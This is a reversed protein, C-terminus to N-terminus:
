DDSDSLKQPASPCAYCGPCKSYQSSLRAINHAFQLVVPPDVSNIVPEGAAGGAGLNHLVGFKPHKTIKVFFKDELTQEDVDDIYDKLKLEIADVGTAVVSDPPNILPGDNVAAVKISVKGTGVDSSYDTASASEDSFTYQFSTYLPLEGTELNKPSFANKAPIFTVIGRDNSVVDGVHLEVLQSADTVLEDYTKVLAEGGFLGNYLKGEDPVATIKVFFNANTPAATGQSLRCAAHPAPDAFSSSSPRSPARSRSALPIHTVSDEAVTEDLDVAKTAVAAFNLVTVTAQASDAGGRSASYSFSVGGSPITAFTHKVELVYGGAVEPDSALGLGLSLGVPKDGGLVFTVDDSGGADETDMARLPITCEAGAHCVVVLNDGYVPARSAVSAPASPAQRERSTLYTMENKLTPLAGILGDHAAGTTAAHNPEVTSGPAEDFRYYMNLNPEDGALSKRYNAKIEESTRVGSWVRFEDLLGCFAQTEEFDGWPADAEQAIHLVGGPRVPEATIAPGGEKDYSHTFVEEANIFLTFTALKTTDAPVTDWVLAVHTWEDHTWTVNEHGYACNADKCEVKQTGRFIWIFNRSIMLVLENADEYRAIGRIKDYPVYVSYGFLALQSLHPDLIRMWFETTAGGASADPPASWRASTTDSRYWDFYSASGAGGVLLEGVSPRMLLATAVILITTPWM